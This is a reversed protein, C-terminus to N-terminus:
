SWSHARSPWNQQALQNTQRIFIAREVAKSFTRTACSSRRRGMMAAAKRRPSMEYETTRM